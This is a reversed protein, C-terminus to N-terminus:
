GFLYRYSKRLASRSVLYMFLLSAGIAIGVLLPQFLVQYTLAWPILKHVARAILELVKPHLLYIGFSAAGLRNLAASFPLRVEDFAAFCLVFALTYLSNSLTAPSGGQRVGTLRFVVESEILVLAGLVLVAALLQVKVKSLWMKFPTLYLGAVVGLCFFIGYTPSLLEVVKELGALQPRALLLYHLSLAVAQLVAAVILVKRPSTQAQSVILPSLLYFQCIVPIYFYVPHASGTLLRSLYDIPGYVHGELADGIFIVISWLLYPVLLFKLRGWVAKWSVASRSGRAMYAVFFGSVFLFAPIAFTTLCKVATLGYYRVGDAWHGAALVPTAPNGLWYRLATLGWGAAHNCVVALIALGNLLLLRRTM